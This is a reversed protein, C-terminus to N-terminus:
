GVHFRVFKSYDELVDTNNRVSVFDKEWFSHAAKAGENARKDVEKIQQVYGERLVLSKNINVIIM